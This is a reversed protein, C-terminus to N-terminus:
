CLMGRRFTELFECSVANDLLEAPVTPPGQYRCLIGEAVGQVRKAVQAEPQRFSGDEKVYLVSDPRGYLVLTLSSLADVSALAGSETRTAMKEVLAKAEATVPRLGALRRIAISHPGIPADAKCPIINALQLTGAGISGAPLRVLWSNVILLYENDDMAAVDTVNDVM